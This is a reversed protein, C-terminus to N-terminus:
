PASGAGSRASTSSPGPWPRGSGRSRSSSRRRRPTSTSRSGRPPRRRVPPRRSPTPPRPPDGVKAVLVRQGDALPAALNLRDLDAEPLGGGVAEVADIVRSGAPLEVVGPRLVAGAVHVVLVAPGATAATTSSAVTPDAAVDPAAGSAPVGPPPGEPVAASPSGLGTRYWVVGAVAAVLILAAVGLRPDARWSRLRDAVGAALTPRPPTRGWFLEAVSPEGARDAVPPPSPESM